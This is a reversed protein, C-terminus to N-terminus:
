KSNGMLTRPGVQESRRPRHESGERSQSVEVQGQGLREETSRDVSAQGKGMM